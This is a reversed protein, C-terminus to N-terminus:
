KKHKKKEPLKITEQGVGLLGFPIMAALLDPDNTRAPDFAAFRSRLQSPNFLFTTDATKKSEALRASDIVNRITASDKGRQLAISAIDNTESAGPYRSNNIENWYKGRGSVSLNDGKRIMLPMVNAGYPYKPAFDLMRKDIAYTNAISPDSTVVAATGSPTGTKRASNAYAPDFAAIDSYTGHYADDVYGLAKARDMATNNPPLGLMEVANKQAIEHALEFATKGVANISGQFQALNFMKNYYPTQTIDGGARKVQQFQKEEEKTPLYRETTQIAWEKPNSVLLGLGSKVTQKARDIGALLGPIIGDAM